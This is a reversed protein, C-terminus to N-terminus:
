KSMDKSLTKKQGGHVRAHTVEHYEVCTRDSLAILRMRGFTEMSASERLIVADFNIM